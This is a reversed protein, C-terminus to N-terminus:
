RANRSGHQQCAGHETAGHQEGHIQPAFKPNVWASFKTTNIATCFKTLIVNTMKIICFNSYKACKAQFFGM